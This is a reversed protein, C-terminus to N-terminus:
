AIEWLEIIEDGGAFVAETKGRSRLVYAAGMGQVTILPM